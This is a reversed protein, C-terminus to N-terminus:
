LHCSLCILMCRKAIIVIKKLLCFLRCAFYVILIMLLSTCSDIRLFVLCCTFQLFYGASYSLKAFSESTLILTRDCMVSRFVASLGRISEFSQGVVDSLVIGSCQYM